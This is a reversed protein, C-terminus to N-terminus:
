QPVSPVELQVAQTAPLYLSSMAWCVSVQVSQPWPVDLGDVPRVETHMLQTAPLNAAVAAAATLQVSQLAPFYLALAAWPESVHMLQTAPFYFHLAAWADSLHMPQM